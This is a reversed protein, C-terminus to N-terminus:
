TMYKIRYMNNQKEEKEKKGKKDVMQPSYIQTYLYLIAPICLWYSCM